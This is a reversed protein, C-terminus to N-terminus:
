PVPLFKELAFSYILCHHVKKEMIQELAIKYYLMQTKYRDLLIRDEGEGIRDTKYDLLWFGEEDEGCVDIIGQLIVNEGGASDPYLVSSDLGLTFPLEKHLKGEEEMRAFIEGYESFLFASVGRFVRNRVPENISESGPVMPWIQDLARSLDEKDHIGSFPLLEMVKHVLTGYDTSRFTEEEERLFRPLLTEEEEPPLEWSPSEEEPLDEMALKKLESVSYKRKLDVSERFPYIRGFAKRVPGTDARILDEEKLLDELSEQREGGSIRGIQDELDRGYYFSCGKWGERSLVPLIWDLYNIGHEPSPLSIMENIEELKKEEVVGTLILRRMARTMAVYLIRLEEELTEKRLQDKIAKKLITPSSTREEIRIADMGIGIQPHYLIAKGLDRTNFKRSLRSVFVVPYELGKSKHITTIRVLDEVSDTLSGGGLEVEYSALQEMHRIFYFLGKLGTKEYDQAYKLLLALNKRRKQGHSMSLVREYYGTEQYIDWVLEHLPMEQKKKRFEQLTSLFDRIRGTLDGKDGEELYLKLLEYLSMERRIAPDALTKLGALDGPSFGGIESLMVGAMPIDQYINDVLALYNLMVRVERSQFYGKYNDCVAPISLSELCDAMWPGEDKASRLLIVMDRYAYGEQHLEKIKDAIMVTEALLKDLDPDTEDTGSVMLLTEQVEHERSMPSNEGARLAIKGDYDIGGFDESMLKGFFLNCYDLVDPLSRFNDRLEIKKGEGAEYRHYRKLFLDPRAQRFRYISQKVDGVVFLSADGAKLLSSILTEQLLSTDQYEDVFIAKYRAAIEGAEKSPIVTGDEEYGSVLLKLAFHELDDFDYINKEKKKELLLSDFRQLLSIMERFHPYVEKLEMRLSSISKLFHAQRLEEIGKKVKEHRKKVSDFPLWDKLKGTKAPYRPFSVGHIRDYFEEYTGAEGLSGLMEREMQLYDCVKSPEGEEGFYRFAEDLYESLRRVQSHAHDLIMGVIPSGEEEEDMLARMDRDVRNLWGEMDPFGRSFRYFGTIIDELVTDDKGPAYAEVLDLFSKDGTQYREELVQEMVEQRLLKLEGEEGIRFAPDLGLDNFHTRILHLCFSHVTSIDAHKIVRIQRRLRSNDPDGALRSEMEEVVREKMERAAANTFTLVLIEDASLPDSPDLIRETIRTVLVRTKGAGAGASVLIEQEGSFIAEEQERTYDM